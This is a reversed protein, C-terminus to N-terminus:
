FEKDNVQFVFLGLSRWMRVVKPRDDIVYEVYYDNVLSEFIEKKVITDDRKDGTKRMYLKYMYPHFNHRFLFEQTQERFKEERGSVFLLKDEPDRTKSWWNTLVDAVSECLKDDACRETQYPGRHGEFLALTGDLDCIIGAPNAYDQQINPKAYTASGDIRAEHVLSLMGKVAKEPVPAQGTRTKLREICVEPPVDFFTEEVHVNGHERALMHVRERASPQLHTDDCVVNKGSRLAQRILHDKMERVMDENAKSYQVGLMARIDDRNVRVYDTLSKAATTKGSGPLGKFLKITQM